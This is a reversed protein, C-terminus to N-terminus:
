FFKNYQYIHTILQARCKLSDCSNGAEWISFFARLSAAPM